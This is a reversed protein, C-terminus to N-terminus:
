TEQQAGSFAPNLIEAIDAARNRSDRVTLMIVYLHSDGNSLIYHDTWFADTGGNHTVVNDYVAWGCAYDDVPYLLQEMTEEKLLFGGFLARDYKLVDIATSHIDGCGRTAAPSLYYYDSGISCTVDGFAMSSSSTMGCPEFIVENMYEEYSKGTLQEIILALLYYNTNSYYFMTDPEFDLEDGFVCELFTQGEVSEFFDREREEMTRGNASVDNILDLAREYGFFDSPANRYDPIGSRMHLLNDVTIQSVEGYNDCYDYEPFFDGLTDDLSIKGKEVLKMICAATFSKTMSGIEYVTYPTVTNGDIDTLGIGSAFIVDDDTAVLISGEVTKGDLYDMILNVYEQYQPEPNAMYYDDIYTLGEVQAEVATRAKLKSNCSALGMTMSLLLIISILKKM